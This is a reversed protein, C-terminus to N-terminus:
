RAAQAPTDGEPLPVNLRLGDEFDIRFQSQKSPGDIKLLLSRSQHPFLPFSGYTANSAFGRTQISDVRGLKGSLNEIRLEFPGAAVERVVSVRVDNGKMKSKQYVYVLHPLIINIRLGGQVPAARTLTNIIAFWCPAQQCKASYFVYHIQHPPIVFSNSGLRVSVGSPPGGYSVTGQAGVSFDRVELIAALPVDGENSLTFDGNAKKRYEAIPPALTQATVQLAAFLVCVTVFLGNIRFQPM